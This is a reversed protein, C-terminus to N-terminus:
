TEHVREPPRGMDDLAACSGNHGTCCGSVWQVWQVLQVVVKAQHDLRNSGHSSVDELKSTVGHNTCKARVCVCVGM